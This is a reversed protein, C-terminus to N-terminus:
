PSLRCAADNGANAFVTMRVSGKRTFVIKSALKPQIGRPFGLAQLTKSTRRSYEVAAGRDYTTPPDTTLLRISSMTLRDRDAIRQRLWAAVQRRGRYLVSKRRRYDCDSVGLDRVIRPDNTFSGLARRFNGANLADLFQVVVTVGRAQRATLTPAAAVRGRTAGGGAAVPLLAALVVAQLVLATRGIGNV